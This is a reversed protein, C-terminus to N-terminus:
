TPDSPITDQDPRWISVHLRDKNRVTPMAFDFHDTRLSMELDEPPCGPVQGAALRRYRESSFLPRLLEDLDLTRGSLLGEMYLACARDEPAVAPDASAVLTVEDFGCDAVYRATAKAVVLSAVVVKDAGVAALAAQTGASSRQILTAGSRAQAAIMSPSNSIEIGAVPLGDVEASLLSGLVLRHFHRAKELDAFLAVDAMGAALAYATVSFARVVDIVVVLGAARSAGAVGVAHTIKVPKVQRHAQDSRRPVPNRRDHQPALHSWRNTNM